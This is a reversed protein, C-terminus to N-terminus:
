VPFDRKARSGLMFRNAEPVSLRYGIALSAGGKSGYCCCNQLVVDAHCDTNTSADRGTSRYVIGAGTARVQDKYMPTMQRKVETRVDENTTTM